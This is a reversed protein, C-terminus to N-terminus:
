AGCGHGEGGGQGCHVACGAPEEFHAPGQKQPVRPRASLCLCLVSDSLSGQVGAQTAQQQSCHVPVQFVVAPRRPKTSRSGALLGSATGGQAQAEAALDAAGGAEEHAGGAEEGWSQAVPERCLLFVSKGGLASKKRRKFLGRESSTQQKLRSVSSHCAEVVVLLSSHTPFMSHIVAKSMKQRTTASTCTTFCHSRLGAAGRTGLTTM